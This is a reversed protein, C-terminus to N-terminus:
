SSARDVSQGDTPSVAISLNTADYNYVAVDFTFQFSNYIRYTGNTTTGWYAPAPLGFITKTVVCNQEGVVGDATIFPSHLHDTFSTTRKYNSIRLKNNVLGVDYGTPGSGGTDCSSSIESCNGTKGTGPCIECNFCRWANNLDFPNNAQCAERHNFNTGNWFTGTVGTFHTM